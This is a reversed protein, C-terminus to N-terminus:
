LPQSVSNTLKLSFLLIPTQLVAVAAVPRNIVACYLEVQATRVVRVVCYYSLHFTIVLCPQSLIVSSHFYSQVVLKPDVSYDNAENPKFSLHKCNVRNLTDVTFHNM